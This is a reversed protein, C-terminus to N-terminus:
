FPTHNVKFQLVADYNEISNQPFVYFNFPRSIYAQKEESFVYTCIGWQFANMRICNHRVKQYRDELTDFDHAKDELGVTLGTEKFSSM